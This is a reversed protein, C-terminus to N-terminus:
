CLWSLCPGAHSYIHYFIGYDAVSQMKEPLIQEKRSYNIVKSCAVSKNKILM